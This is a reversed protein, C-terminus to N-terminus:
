SATQGFELLTESVAKFLLSLGIKKHALILRNLEHPLTFVLIFTDWRCFSLPKNKWGGPKPWPSASPATATAAPTTLRASLAARM